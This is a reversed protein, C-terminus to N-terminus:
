RSSLLFSFFFSLFLRVYDGGWGAVVCRVVDTHGVLTGIGKGVSGMGGSGMAGGVNTNGSSGVAASSGSGIRPDWLRVIRETGGSM